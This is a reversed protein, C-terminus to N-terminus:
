LSGLFTFNLKSLSNESPALKSLISELVHFGFTSTLSHSHAPQDAGKNYMLMFSLNEGM